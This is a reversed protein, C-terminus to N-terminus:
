WPFIWGGCGNSMSYEVVKGAGVTGSSVIFRHNPITGDFNVPIPYANKAPMQVKMRGFGYRTDLSTRNRGGWRSAGYGFVAIISQLLTPNHSMFSLGNRRMWNLVLAATSTVVPAAASTGGISTYLDPGWGIVPELNSPGLVSVGFMSVQYGYRNTGLIAGYSSSDQVPTNRYAISNDSDMAGVSTVFSLTSPFDMSCNGEEGDNGTSVVLPIGARKMSWISSALGAPSYDRRCRDNDFGASMNVVDLGDYVAEEFGSKYSLATGSSIGSGRHALYSYIDAEKVLGSRKRQDATNSGPFISSQGQQISGGIISAVRLSHPPRGNAPGTTIWDPICERPMCFHLGVARNPGGPWDLWGVHRTDINHGDDGEIVGIKINNSPSNVRGGEEGVYGNSEYLYTKAYKRVRDMNYESLHSHNEHELVWAPNVAVVEQHEIIEDILHAPASIAVSNDLWYHHIISVSESLNSIFDQQQNTILANRSEIISHRTSLDSSARLNEFFVDAKSDDFNIVFILEGEPPLIDEGDRYASSSAPFYVEEGNAYDGPYGNVEAEKLTTYGWSSQIRELRNPLAPLGNQSPPDEEIIRLEVPQAQCGQENECDVVTFAVTDNQLAQRNTQNDDCEQNIELDKGNCPVYGLPALTGQASFPARAIIKEERNIYCDIGHSEHEPEPYSAIEVESNPIICRDISYSSGMVVILNDDGVYDSDDGRTICGIFLLAIGIAIINKM